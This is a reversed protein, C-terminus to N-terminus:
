YLLQSIIKEIKTKIDNIDECIHITDKTDLITLYFQCTDYSVKEEIGVRDNFKSKFKIQFGDSQYKNQLLIYSQYNQLILGYEKATKEFVPVILNQMLKIQIKASVSDIDWNKNEKKIQNNFEDIFIQKFQESDNAILNKALKVLEKAIRINQKM